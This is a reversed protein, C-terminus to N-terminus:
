PPGVRRTSRGASRCRNAAARWRFGDFSSDEVDVSAASTIQLGFPMNVGGRQPGGTMACHTNRVVVVDAHARICADTVQARLGDVHFRGVTAGRSVYVVRYAGRVAAPGITAAPIVDRLTVVDNEGDGEIAMGQRSPWVVNGTMFLAPRLHADSDAATAALPLLALGAAIAKSMM